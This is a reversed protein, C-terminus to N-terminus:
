RERLRFRSREPTENLHIIDRVVNEFESRTTIGVRRALDKFFSNGKILRGGHRDSIAFLRRIKEKENAGESSRQCVSILYTRHKEYMAKIDVGQEYSAVLVYRLEGPSDCLTKAEDLATEFM